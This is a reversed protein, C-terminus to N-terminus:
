SGSNHDGPRLSERWDNAMDYAEGRPGAFRKVEVRLKGNELVPLIRILSVNWEDSKYDLDITGDDGVSVGTQMSPGDDAHGTQVRTHLQNEVARRYTRLWDQLEHGVEASDTM